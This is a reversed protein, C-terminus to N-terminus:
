VRESETEKISSWGVNIAISPHRQLLILSEASGSNELAKLSWHFLNFEAMQTAGAVATDCAVNRCRKCGRFEYRKRSPGAFPLIRRLERDTRTVLERARSGGVVLGDAIEVIEVGDIRHSWWARLARRFSPRTRWLWAWASTVRARIEAREVPDTFDVEDLVTEYHLRCTCIPQHTQARLLAHTLAAFLARWNPNSLLKTETNM